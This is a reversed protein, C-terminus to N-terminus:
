LFRIKRKYRSIMFDQKAKENLKDYEIFLYTLYRKWIHEWGSGDWSTWQNYEIDEDLTDHSKEGSFVNRYVLFPYKKLLDIMEERSLSYKMEKTNGNM